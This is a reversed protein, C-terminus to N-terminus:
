FITGGGCEPAWSGAKDYAIVLKSSKALEKIVAMMNFKHVLGGAAKNGEKFGFQM